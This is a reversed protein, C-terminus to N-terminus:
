KPRARIPKVLFGGLVMGALFVTVIVIVAPDSGQSLTAELMMWDCACVPHLSSFGPSGYCPCDDTCGGNAAICRSRQRRGLFELDRSLTKSSVTATHTGHGIFFCGNQAGRAFVPHTDPLYGLHHGLVNAFEHIVARHAIDFDPL